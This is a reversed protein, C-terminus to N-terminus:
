TSLTDVYVSGGADGSVNTNEIQVFVGETTFTNAAVTVDFALPATGTLTITSGIQSTKAEDKFAKITGGTIGGNSTMVVRIKEVLVRQGYSPFSHTKTVNGTILVGKFNLTNQNRDYKTSSSAQNSATGPGRLSINCVGVCTDFIVPPHCSYGDGGSIRNITRSPSTVCERFKIWSVNSDNLDTFARTSIKTDGWQGGNIDLTIKASNIDFQHIGSDPNGGSIGSNIMKIYSVNTADNESEIIKTTGNTNSTTANWFEFKCNTLTYQSADGTNGSALFLFTGSQVINCNQWHTYGFGSIDFVRDIHGFFICGIITNILAQSNRAFLFTKPNNVWLRHFNFEDNNSTGLVNIVKNFKDTYCDILTFRKGGGTPDLNFAVSTWSARAAATDNFFGMGEFQLHIHVTVNVMNGTSLTYVFVSEFPGEGSFKVGIPSVVSIEGNIMYKGRPVFIEGLGWSALGPPSIRTGSLYALAANIAALDISYGTGTVFPYDVQLAALSAYRSPIWEAVTHLTGDGIAGFDKVSVTEALKSDLTRTVSGTGTALFNATAGANFKRATFTQGITAAELAVFPGTTAAAVTGSTTPVVYQGIGITGAAKLTFIDLQSDTTQFDVAGGNATNSALTVGFVVDAASTAVEVRESGTTSVKVCAYAPIAGSATIIPNNM